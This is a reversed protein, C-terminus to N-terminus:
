LMGRRRRDRQVDLAFRIIRERADRTLHVFVVGIEPVLERSPQKEILRVVRARLNLPEPLDPLAVVRGRLHLPLVERSEPRLRHTRVPETKPDETRPLPLEITLEDGPTLPLDSRGRLGGASLDSVQLQIHQSQGPAVGAESGLYLGSAVASLPVRVYERQQIREAHLITLGVLPEPVVQAFAVRGDAQYLADMARWTHCTLHDGPQVEVPPQGEPAGDVWVMRSDIRQVITRYWRRAHEPGAGLVVIQGPEFPVARLDTM